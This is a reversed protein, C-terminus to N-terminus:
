RGRAAWFLHCIPVKVLSVIRRAAGAVPVRPQVLFRVKILRLERLRRSGRHHPQPRSPTRALRDQDDRRHDSRPECSFRDPEPTRPRARWLHLDAVRAGLENEIMARIDGALAPDAEADLLVMGSDRVLAYSWSAIVGAGILGVVPDLWRLGWIVVQGFSRVTQHVIQDRLQAQGLPM